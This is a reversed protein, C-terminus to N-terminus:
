GGGVNLERLGASAPAGYSPFYPGLMAPNPVAVTTEVLQRVYGAPGTVVDRNGAAPIATRELHVPDATASRVVVFVRVAGINGPHHNLRTPADVDDSYAPGGSAPALNIGTDDNAIAAGVTAGVLPAASRPFVYAFQIDEVDPAIPTWIPAGAGTRLGQDLMLYPRANAAGWPRVTGTADYSLIFYRYRDVKFVKAASTLSDLTPKGAAMTAISSYCSDALWGNQTAFNTGTSTIPITWTGDGNNTAAGSAEVYAWTMSGSYCVVQLLQGPAISLNAGAAVTLSTSAAGAGLTLPHPGFAPDRSYFVIEDPGTSSDRCLATCASGAGSPATKSTFTAGGARDIRVNTMPGFDFALMPDVGFGANRLNAVVHGLGIRATEQLARTSSTSNFNRQSALMLGVAGAIVVTSVLLAVLLEVLSFGRQGTRTTM